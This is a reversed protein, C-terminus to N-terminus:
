DLIEMARLNIQGARLVIELHDNLDFSVNTLTKFLAEHMFADIAEDREGLERAHYAYAAIGKLGFVLTDQLSQIDENKGCAGAKGACGKGGITQECQNCFM